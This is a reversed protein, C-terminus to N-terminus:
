RDLISYGNQAAILFQKYNVIKIDNAYALDKISSWDIQCAEVCDKLDDIKIEDDRNDQASYNKSKIMEKIKEAEEASILNVISRSQNQDIVIQENFLLQFKLAEDHILNPKCCCM